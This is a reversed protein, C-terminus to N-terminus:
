HLCHHRWPSTRVPGTTSPRGPLQQVPKFFAFLHHDIAMHRQTVTNLHGYGVRRNQLPPGTINLNKISRGIKAETIEM